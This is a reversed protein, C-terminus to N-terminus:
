CDPEVPVVPDVPVVPEDPDVGGAVVSEVVVPSPEEVEVDLGVDVDPLEVEVDLEVVVVGVCDAQDIGSVDPEPWVVETATEFPSTTTVTSPVAVDFGTASTPLTEIAPASPLSESATSAETTVAESVTVNSPPPPVFVTKPGVLSVFQDIVPVFAPLKPLTEKM